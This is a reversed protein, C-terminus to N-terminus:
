NLLYSCPCIPLFLLVFFAMFILGYQRAAAAVQEFQKGPGVEAFVDVGAAILRAMLYDAITGSRTAAQSNLNDPYSSSKTKPGSNPRAGGHSSALPFRVVTHHM